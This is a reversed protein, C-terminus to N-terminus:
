FECTLIKLFNNEQNTVKTLGQSVNFLPFARWVFVDFTAEKLIERERMDSKWSEPSDLERGGSIRSLIGCNSEDSQGQPVIYNLLRLTPSYRIHM